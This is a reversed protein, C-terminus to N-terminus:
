RARRTVQPAQIPAATRRIPNTPGSRRRQAPQPAYQHTGYHVTRSAANPDQRPESPAIRRSAPKPQRTGSVLRVRRPGPGMRRLEDYLAVHWDSVREVTFNEKWHRKGAAAMAALQEPSALLSLLGDAIASSDRPVVMGGGSQCVLQRLSPIDSALVPTGASWAELVVVGFTESASPLCLLDAAHLWGARAADDVRGVDIIRTGPAVEPVDLAPGPGVFAFTIGAAGPMRAAADLLVRYGKHESRVGLFLVLPGEIGHRRRFASGDVADVGPSCAGSVVVREPTVGLDLYTRAEPPLLAVVRDAGKYAAVSAVDDGWQGRHMFPTIVVPRGARRAALLGAAAPFGDSWIHVVDALSAARALQPAVVQAYLRALGLRASGFAYRGLLPAQQLLLPALALRHARSLRLPSVDIPGDSFPEFPAPLRPGDSVRSIPGGDIRLAIVDVDHARAVGHSVHRVLTEIGGDAPWARRMLYLVRM